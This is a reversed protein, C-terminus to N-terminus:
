YITSTIPGGDSSRDVQLNALRAFNGVFVTGTSQFTANTVASLLANIVTLQPTTPTGTQGTKKYAWREYSWIPYVGTEVNTISFPVGNYAIPTLTSIDQAAVTGIANTIVGLLARVNSGSSQGLGPDPVPLGNATTSYPAGLSGYATQSNTTWTSITGSFYINADVETRVAAATNRAVLYLPSSSTGGFFTTPLTGAAGELYYAQQQTLNTLTVLAPSKNTNKIFVFPVVLTRTQTFPTPDIGVAEPATSSVAVTPTITTNTLATPENVQNALDQFGGVAGLLSFDITVNGLGPQATITGVYTRVTANTPSIVVKSIGGTLINTVRDYLVNQSANGGVFLVETDARLSTQFLLGGLTVGVAIYKKLSITKM